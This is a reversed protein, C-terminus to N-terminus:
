ATPYKELPLLQLPPSLSQLPPAPLSFILRQRQLSNLVKVHPLDHFQHCATATIVWPGIVVVMIVLHYLPVLVVLM